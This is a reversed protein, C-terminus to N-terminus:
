WLVVMTMAAHSLAVALTRFGVNRLPEKLGSPRRLRLLEGGTLLASLLMPAALKWGLLAGAAAQACPFIWAAPSAKRAAKADLRAHVVLIAGVGHLSLLGWLWWAWVPIGGTAALAALLATSGLGASSVVQLVVSRQRNAQAALVAILTMAAAVAGLVILPVLPLSRLLALGCLALAPMEWMLCRRAIASEPRHRALVVLPERLLFVLLVAALALPIQWSWSRALIVSAVFPTLLM